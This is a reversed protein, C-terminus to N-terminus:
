HRDTLSLHIFHGQIVTQEKWTASQNKNLFSQVDTM